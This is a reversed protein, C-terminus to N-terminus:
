QISTVDSWTVDNILYIELTVTHTHLHTHAYTYTHGSLASNFGYISTRSLLLYAGKMVSCWVVVSCWVYMLLLHLSKLQLQIDSCRGKRREWRMRM